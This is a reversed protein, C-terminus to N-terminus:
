DKIENKILQFVSEELVDKIVTFLAEIQESDKAEKAIKELIKM